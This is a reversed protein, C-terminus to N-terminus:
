LKIIVNNSYNFKLMTIISLIKHQTLYTVGLTKKPISSSRRTEALGPNLIPAHCNRENLKM